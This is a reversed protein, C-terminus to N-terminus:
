TSREKRIVRGIPIGPIEVEIETTPPAAQTFWKPPDLFLEKEQLQHYVDVFVQYLAGKHTKPVTAILAFYKELLQLKALKLAHFEPVELVLAFNKSAWAAFAAAYRGTKPPKKKSELAAFMVQHYPNWHPHDSM